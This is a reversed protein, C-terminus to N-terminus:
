TSYSMLISCVDNPIRSLVLCNRRSAHCSKIKERPVADMCEWRPARTIVLSVMWPTVQEALSLLLLDTVLPTMLTNWQLMTSIPTSIGVRPSAVALWLDQCDRLNRSNWNDLPHAMRTKIDDTLWTPLLRTDELHRGIIQTTTWTIGDLSTTPTKWLIWGNRYEVEM